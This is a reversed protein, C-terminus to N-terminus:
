PSAADAASAPLGLSRAAPVLGLRIVGLDPASERDAREAHAIADIAAVFALRGRTIDRAALASELKALQTVISARSAPHLVSVARTGADSLSQIVEPAVEATPPQCGPQESCEAYNGVVADSHCAAIAVTAATLAAVVRM